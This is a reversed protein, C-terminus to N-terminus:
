FTFVKSQDALDILTVGTGIKAGPPLDDEGVM